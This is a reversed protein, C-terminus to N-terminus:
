LSTREVVPRETTSDTLKMRPVSGSEKWDEDIANQKTLRWRSGFSFDFQISSVNQNETPLSQEIRCHRSRTTTIFIGRSHQSPRHVSSFAATSIRIRECQFEESKPLNSSHSWAKCSQHWTFCDSTQSGFCLPQRCHSSTICPRSRIDRSYGLSQAGTYTSNWTPVLWSTKSDIVSVTMAQARATSIGAFWCMRRILRSERFCSTSNRSSIM